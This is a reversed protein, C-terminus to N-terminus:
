QLTGLFNWLKLFIHDCLFSFGFKTQWLWSYIEAPAIKLLWLKISIVKLPLYEFWFYKQDKFDHICISFHSSQWGFNGPHGVRQLFLVRQLRGAFSSNEYM